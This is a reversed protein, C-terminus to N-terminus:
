WKGPEKGNYIVTGKAQAEPTVLLQDLVARSVGVVRESHSPVFRRMLTLLQQPSELLEHVHWVHPRHTRKAALAGSWVSLTNSHVLDIHETAILDAIMNVSKRLRGFFRPLGTPTLYMRRAVAIPLARTEIGSAHLERSLLGNYELDNALIVFPQFWTRDLGRLLYLLAIDSGYLEDSPHVFLIRAPRNQYM